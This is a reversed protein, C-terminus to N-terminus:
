EHPVSRPRLTCHGLSDGPLRLIRRALRGSLRDEERAAIRLDGLPVAVRRHLRVDRRHRSPLPLDAAPDVVNDNAGDGVHLLRHSPVRVEVAVLTVAPEESRFLTTSPFRTDTLTHSPPRRIM